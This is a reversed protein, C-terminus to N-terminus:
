GFTDTIGAQDVWEPDTKAALAAPGGFAHLFVGILSSVLFFFVVAAVLTVPSLLAGFAATPDGGNNEAEMIAPVVASFALAFLLMYIIAIIAYMLIYILVWSGFIVWGKGKSVRWASQFRIRRDRITLAAAPSLRVMLIFFGVFYALVLVIVLLGAVATGTDGGASAALAVLLGMIVAFGIYSAMFVGFFILGVVLLRGEDAGLRLSFGEARMYRRQSAAEFLIWLIMGGFIAIAYGGLLRGINGIIAADASDPNDLFDPSFMAGFIPAFSWIMVAYMLTGALGYALAFKWIFGKPGQTKFLHQFANTFTFPLENM